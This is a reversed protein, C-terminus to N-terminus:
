EPGACARGAGSVSTIRSDESESAILVPPALGPTRLPGRWLALKASKEWVGPALKSHENSPAPKAGQAM